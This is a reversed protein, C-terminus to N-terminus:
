RPSAILFRTVCLLISEQFLKISSCLSRIFSRVAFIDVTFLFSFEVSTDMSVNFPLILLRSHFNAHKSDWSSNLDLFISSRSCYSHWFDRLNLPNSTFSFSDFSTHSWTILLKILYVKFTSM